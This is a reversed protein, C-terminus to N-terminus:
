MNQRRPFYRAGIEWQHPHLASSFGPDERRVGQSLHRVCFERQAILAIIGSLVEDVPQAIDAAILEVTWAIAQSSAPGVTAECNSV